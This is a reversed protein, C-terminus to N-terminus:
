CDKEIVRENKKVVLGKGDSGMKLQQGPGVEHVDGIRDFKAKNGYKIAKGKGTKGLKFSAGYPVEISNGIKDRRQTSGLEKMTQEYFKNFDDM